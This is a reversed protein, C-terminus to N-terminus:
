FEIKRFSVSINDNSKRKSKKKLDLSQKKETRLKKGADEPVQPMDPLPNVTALTNLENKIETNVSSITERTTIKNFNENQLSDNFFKNASMEKPLTDNTIAYNISTKEKTIEGQYDASIGIQTKVPDAVKVDTFFMNLGLITLVVVSLAPIVGIWIKGKKRHIGSITKETVTTSPQVTVAIKNTGTQLIEEGSKKDEQQEDTIENQQILQEDFVQSEHIASQQIVPSEQKEAQIPQEVIIGKENVVMSSIIPVQQGPLSSFKETVKEQNVQPEDKKIDAPLKEIFASSTESGANLYYLLEPVETTNKKLSTLLLQLIGRFYPDTIKKLQNFLLSDEPYKYDDVNFLLGRSSTFQDYLGPNLEIAKLTTALLLFSFHDAFLDPTRPNRYPHQCAFNWGGQGASLKWGEFTFSDHDILIMKGEPLVM